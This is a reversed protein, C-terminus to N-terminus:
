YTVSPNPPELLKSALREQINWAVYSMFARLRGLPGRNQPVYWAIPDFIVVRLQGERELLVGFNSFVKTELNSDVTLGRKLRAAIRLAVLTGDSGLPDLMLGTQNRLSPGISLMARLLERAQQLVSDVQSESLGGSEAALEGMPTVYPQVIVPTGDVKLILTPIIHRLVLSAYKALERNKSALADLGRFLRSWKDVLRETPYSRMLSAAIHRKSLTPWGIVKIVCGNQCWARLLGGLEEQPVEAGAEQEEFVNFQAVPAKSLIEILGGVAERQEPRGGPLKLIFIRGETSTIEERPLRELMRIFRQFNTEEPAEASFPKVESLLRERM